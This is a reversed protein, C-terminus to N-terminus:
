DRVKVLAARLTRGHWLYGTRLVETIRPEGDADGAEAPEHIVAEHITPDFAADDTDIVELGAKGLIELLQKHVPAVGEVGHLVASDCADLVPLLQEALRAAAATAHDAQQKLTRKRFNEFDAQVRRALALYEDRQAIATPLDVDAAPTPTVDADLSAAAEAAEEVMDIEPVETDAGADPGTGNTDSM